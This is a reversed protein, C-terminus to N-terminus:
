PQLNMPALQRTEFDNWEQIIKSTLTHLKPVQEAAQTTPERDVEQLMTLLQMLSSRVGTLNEAQQGSRRRREGGPLAQLQKSIADLKEAEAGSAKERRAKLKAQAAEAKEVVPQLRLLDEYVQSSLEFQKQLDRLPTKVRPDIEVTLPQTYRQGDVTLTVTYKGPMVWPSTAQPATNMYVAAIPYEPKIGAVPAYHM